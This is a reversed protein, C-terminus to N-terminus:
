VTPPDQTTRRVQLQRFEGVPAPCNLAEQQEDIHKQKKARRSEDTDNLTPGRKNKDFVVYMKCTVPAAKRQAEKKSKLNEKKAFDRVAGLLLDVKAEQQHNREGEDETLDGFGCFFIM